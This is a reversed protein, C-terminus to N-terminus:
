ALYPPSPRPHWVADGRRAGPDELITRGRWSRGVGRLYGTRRPQEARDSSGRSYQTARRLRDDPPQEAAGDAPSSLHSRLRRVIWAVERVPVRRGKRHEAPVGAARAHAVAM